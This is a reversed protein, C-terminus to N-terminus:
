ICLPVFLGANQIAEALNWNVIPGNKILRVSQGYLEPYLDFPYDTDPLSKNTISEVRQPDNNYPHMRQVYRTLLEQPTYTSCHSPWATAFALMDDDTFAPEM